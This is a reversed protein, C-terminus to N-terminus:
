TQGPCGTFPGASAAAAVPRPPREPSEARRSAGGGSRVIPARRARARAALAASRGLGPSRLQRGRGASVQAARAMAGRWRRKRLTTATRACRARCSRARPFGRGEEGRALVAARRRNWPIRVTPGAARRRPSQSAATFGVKGSDRDQRVLPGHRSQPGSAFRKAPKEAPGERAAANPQGPLARGIALLRRGARYAPRRPRQCPPLGSLLGM